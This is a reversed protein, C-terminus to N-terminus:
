RKGPREECPQANQSGLDSRQACVARRSVRWIATRDRRGSVGRIGSGPSGVRHDGTGTSSRGSGSSCAMKASAQAITLNGPLRGGAMLVHAQDTSLPDAQLPLWVDTAPYATFGPSLVGIVAYPAGGLRVTQHLITPDGGFRRQWLGYSMVAVGPGGPRDEEATFTRGLVPRGGFLAFYNSSARTTAVVEAADGANLNLNSGSYWASLNELGPNHREWFTFMPVSVTVGKGLRELNVIRDSDAFPLPRLIVANVVTFIATNAAVGITLVAVATYTFGPTRRLSRLSFKLDSM